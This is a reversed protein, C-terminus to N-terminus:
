GGFTTAGDPIPLPAADDPVITPKGEAKNLEAEAVSSETVAAEAVAKAESAKKHADIQAQRTAMIEAEVEKIIVSQQEPLVGAKILCRAMARFNVDMADALLNNNHQLAQMDNAFERFSQSVTVMFRELKKDMPLARYDEEAIVMDVKKPDVGKNILRQRREMYQQRRKLDLKSPGKKEPEQDPSDLVYINGKDDKAQRRGDVMEIPLDKGDMHFTGLDQKEATTSENM